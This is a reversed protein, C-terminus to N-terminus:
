INITLILSTSVCNKIQIYKLSGWMSRLETLNTQEVKFLSETTKSHPQPPDVDNKELNFM